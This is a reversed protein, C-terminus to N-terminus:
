PAPANTDGATAAVLCAAASSTRRPATAQDITGRFLGFHIVRFQNIYDSFGDSGTVSEVDRSVIWIHRAPRM